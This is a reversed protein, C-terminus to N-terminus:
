VVFGGLCPFECLGNILGGEIRLLGELSERALIVRVYGEADFGDADLESERVGGGGATEEHQQQQQVGSSADM